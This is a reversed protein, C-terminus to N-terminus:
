IESATLIRREGPRGTEAPDGCKPAYGRGASQRNAVSSVTAKASRANEIQGM